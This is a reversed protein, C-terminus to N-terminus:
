GREEVARDHSQTVEFRVSRVQREGPELSIRWRFLMCSGQYSREFGAESNSVTEVPYWTLRADPEATAEIRVGEFDNGFAVCGALLLEGAIDHTTREGPRPEYFASPNHGGGLLDLNWEVALEFEVPQDGANEVTTELELRPDMRSGGFRYTKTVIIPTSRRDATLSGSRRLVVWGDEISVPEFGGEVFDGLERYDGRALQRGDPAASAGFLHVLGSRREHDDYHLLASLGPEKVSVIDHITKPGGAAAERADAAGAPGASEHAILRAHYAEPRRRMVSALAVRSARLDWSSIAGGEALDFILTQGPSSVLV